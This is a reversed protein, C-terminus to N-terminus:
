IDKWRFSWQVGSRVASNDNLCARGIGGNFEGGTGYEGSLQECFAEGDECECM